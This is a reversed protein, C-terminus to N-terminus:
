GGVSPCIREMHAYQSLEETVKYKCDRVGGVLAHQDGHYRLEVNGWFKKLTKSELAREAFKCGALKSMTPVGCVSATRELTSERQMSNSDIIYGYISHEPCTSDNALHFQVDKFRSDALHSYKASTNFNYSGFM